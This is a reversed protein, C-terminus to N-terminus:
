RYNRVQALAEVSCSDPVPWGLQVCAQSGVEAHIGNSLEPDKIGVTISSSTEGTSTYGNWSGWVWSSSVTSPRYYRFRARGYVTNGDARKDTVTIRNYIWANAEEWVSGAAESRVTGDYSATIPGWSEGTKTVAALAMSNASLVGLLAVAAVRSMTAAIKM